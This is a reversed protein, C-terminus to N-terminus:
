LSSFFFCCCCSFVLFQNNSIKLNEPHKHTYVENRHTRPRSALINQHRDRIESLDYKHLLTKLNKPLKDLKVTASYINKPVSSRSSSSSTVAAAEARNKTKSKRKNDAGADSDADSDDDSADSHSQDAYNPRKAQARQRLQEFRAKLNKQYKQQRQRRSKIESDAHSDNDCENDDGADDNESNAISASDSSIEQVSKSSSVSDRHCKATKKKTNKKNSNDVTAQMLSEIPVLTIGRAGSKGGISSSSSKTDCTSATSTAEGQNADNSADGNDDGNVLPDPSTNPRNDNEDIANANDDISSLLLLDDFASPDPNEMELIDNKLDDFDIHSIPAINNLDNSDNSDSSIAFAEKSSSHSISEVNDM